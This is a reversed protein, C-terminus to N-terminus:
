PYDECEDIVVSRTIIKSVVLPYHTVRKVIIEVIVAGGFTSSSVEMLLGRERTCEVRSILVIEPM